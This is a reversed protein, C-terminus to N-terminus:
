GIEKKTEKEAQCEGGDSASTVEDPELRRAILTRNSSEQLSDLGWNIGKAMGSMVKVGLADGETGTANTQPGALRPLQVPRQGSLMESGAVAMERGKAVRSKWKKWDVAASGGTAAKDVATTVAVAGQTDELGGMTPMLAGGIEVREGTNDGEEVIGEEDNLWHVVDKDGTLAEGRAARKRLVIMAYQADNPVGALLFDFPNSWEVGMWEPRYEMIPAVIFFCIGMALGPFRAMMWPTSFCTILMALFLLTIARWTAPVSRWMIFNKIREHIDALASTLITAAKGYRRTADAALGYKTKKKTTTTNPAYGNDINSTEDDVKSTTPDEQAQRIVDEGNAEKAQQLELTRRQQQRLMNRLVEPKPPYSGVLLINWIMLGFLAPLLLGRFWCTFYAGFWLGTKFMNDWRWIKRMSAFLGEYIPLATMYLREANARLAALRFQDEQLADHLDETTTGSQLDMFRSPSLYSLFSLFYAFTFGAVNLQKTESHRWEEKTPWAHTGLAPDVFGTSRVQHVHKGFDTLFREVELEEYSKMLIKREREDRKNKSEQKLKRNKEEALAIKRQAALLKAEEKTSSTSSQSLTSTSHTAPRRPPLSPPITPSIEHTVTIPVANIGLETAIPRAPLSPPGSAKGSGSEWSEGDYISSSTDDLKPPGEKDDSHNGTDTTFHTHSSAGPSVLSDMTTGQNDPHLDMHASPPYHSASSADDDTVEAAPFGRRSNPNPQQARISYDKLLANTATGKSRSVSRTRAQGPSTSGENAMITTPSAFLKQNTDSNATPSRSRVLGVISTRRGHNNSSPSSASERSNPSFARKLLGSNTKRKGRKSTSSSGPEVEGDEDDDEEDEELELGYAALFAPKGGESEFSAPSSPSALSRQPLAPPAAGPTGVM